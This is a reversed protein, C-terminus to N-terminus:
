NRYFLSAKNKSSQVPLVKTQTELLRAPVSENSTTKTADSTTASTNASVDVNNGVNKSINEEKESDSSGDSISRQPTSPSM